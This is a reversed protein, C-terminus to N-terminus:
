QSKVESKKVEVKSMFTIQKLRNFIKNAIKGEFIERMLDDFNMEKLQEVEEKILNYLNKKTNRSVKAGTIALIKLRVLVGDKTTIDGVFNIVSKNRRSLVRIYSEAMAHGKLKTTATKGSVADIKFIVNTFLTSQKKQNILKSLQVKMTRGILKDPDASVVEGLEQKNFLEPALVTYWQKLKWKDVVKRRRRTAM